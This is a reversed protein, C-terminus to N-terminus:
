KLLANGNPCADRRKKAEKSRRFREPETCTAWHPTGDLNTPTAHGDSTSVFRINQKCARCALVASPRQMWSPPESPAEPEAPLECLHEERWIGPEGGYHSLEAGPEVSAVVDRWINGLESFEEVQARVVRAGCICLTM